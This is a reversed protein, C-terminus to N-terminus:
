GTTDMAHATTRKGCGRIQASVSATTKPRSLKRWPTPGTLHRPDQSTALHPTIVGHDRSEVGLAMGVTSLSGGNPSITRFLEMVFRDLPTFAGGDAEGPSQNMTRAFWSRVGPDGRRAELVAM